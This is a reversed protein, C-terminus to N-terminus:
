RRSCRGPEPRPLRLSRRRRGRRVRSSRPGPGAPTTLSRHRQGPGHAFQYPPAARFRRHGRLGLAPVRRARIRLDVARLLDGHEGQAPAHQFEHRDSVRPRRHGNRTRVPAPHPRRMRGDRDCVSGSLRHRLHRKGEHMQGLAADHARLMTEFYDRQQSSVKEVFYTRENEVFYGDMRVAIFNVINDGPAFQLGSGLGAHHPSASAIGTSGEVMVRIESEPQQEILHNGLLRAVELCVSKIREGSKILSRFHEQAWDTATGCIQMLALEEASKIMRMSALLGDAPCLQARPLRSVVGPHLLAQRDLGIQGRDLGMGTLVDALLRDWEMILYGRRGLQPHEAYIDADTIWCIGRGAALELYTTSLENLVLEPDEQPIIAAVPREWTDVDLLFNTAYYFNEPALIVLADLEDRALAERIETHRRTGEAQSLPM